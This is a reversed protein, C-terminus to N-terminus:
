KRRSLILLRRFILSLLTLRVDYMLLLVLYTVMVVGTDFIETTFKRMGEVCTDVDSIAKTMLNPAKRRLATGPAAVISDYLFQKM